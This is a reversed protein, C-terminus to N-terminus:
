FDDGSDSSRFRILAVRHRSAPPSELIEEIVEVAFSLENGSWQVAFIMWRTAGRTTPCSPTRHIPHRASIERCRFGGRDPDREEHSFHTRAHSQAARVVRSKSTELCTERTDFQVCSRSGRNKMVNFVLRSM